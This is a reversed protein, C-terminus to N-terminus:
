TPGPSGGDYALIPTARGEAFAAEAPGAALAAEFRGPGAANALRPLDPLPAGEALAPTPAPMAGHMAHDMAQGQHNGARALLPVLGSLSALLFSRRNMPNVREPM